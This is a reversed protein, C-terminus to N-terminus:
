RKRRWFTINVFWFALTLQKYRPEWQIGLLRYAAYRSVIIKTKGVYFSGM